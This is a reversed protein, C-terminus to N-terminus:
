ENKIYRMLFASVLHDLVMHADEAPGYEKIETPVHVGEDAIKKLKGGDFATLAITKIGIKKAFEVANLLNQSNIAIGVVAPEPASAVLLATM